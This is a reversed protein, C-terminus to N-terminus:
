ARTQIIAYARPTHEPDKEDAADTEDAEKMNLSTRRIIRDSVIVAVYPSLLNCLGPRPITLLGLPSVSDSGSFHLDRAHYGVHFTLNSRPARDSALRRDCATKWVGLAVGAWFRINSAIPRPRWPRLKGLHLSINNLKAVNKEAKGFLCVPLTLLISIIVPQLVCRIM